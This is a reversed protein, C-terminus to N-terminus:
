LTLPMAARSDPGGMAPSYGIVWATNRGAWWYGKMMKNKIMKIMKMVRKHLPWNEKVWPHCARMFIMMNMLIMMTMMMTMSTIMTVTMIMIIIIINIPNTTSRKWDGPDAMITALMPISAAPNTMMMMMLRTMVKIMMKTVMTMMMTMMGITGMTMAM